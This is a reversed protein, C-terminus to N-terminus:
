KGGALSKRYRESEWSAIFAKAAEGMTSLTYGKAEIHEAIFLVAAVTEVVTRAQTGSMSFRLRGTGPDLLCGGVPADGTGFGLTGILFVMQDPYLPGDIFFAKGYKGTQIREAIYAEADAAPFANGRLGFAAAIRANVDDHLALCDEVANAHAIVGHNQMFIVAPRKGSDREVRALENRISFTLKAGPDVYPVFGHTYPAGALAKQAIDRGEAACAALNAYVSHSHVVFRNLLSHFGAEVSPRLALLGSITMTADKAAASGAQEVDDFDTEAHSLYFGSLADCDLVAYAADTQVDSLRFGSAKIAMLGGDLKVSTNGGGGQVYDARAGVSQSMTAFSQLLPMNQKFFSEAM